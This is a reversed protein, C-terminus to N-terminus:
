RADTSDLESVHTRNRLPHCLVLELLAWELTEITPQRFEKESGPFVLQRPEVM